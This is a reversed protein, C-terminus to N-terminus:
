KEKERGAYGLNNLILELEKPRESNKQAETQTIMGNAILAALSQNMSQMRYYTVSKEIVEKIERLENRQILTPISGQNIMIELAAARGKGNKLPILRQCMVALLAEALQLRVQEQQTSPFTDVIRSITSPANRTHLTAYVLHGTEAATIATAITEPDRMEGLLIVDPDQRLIDRLGDAFTPTDIGIERQTIEAVEDDHLFEVPDELTVIHCKRVMNIQHIMAALTTSKGQGAPGTVLVLGQERTCFTHLVPPLGLSEITPVSSLNRFVVGITGRYRFLNTRFRGVGEVLYTQDSAFRTDFRRQLEPHRLVQTKYREMDAETVEPLPEPYLDGSIRFLPPRGIKLHLDSGKKRVLETLLTNLDLAGNGSM